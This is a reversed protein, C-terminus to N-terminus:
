DDDPFNYGKGAVPAVSVKLNIHRGPHHDTHTWYTKGDYRYKVKYGVLERKETFNDITECRQEITTYGRGRHHKGMDSGFSGGLLAGAVTMADKGGGKGFQNGVVGGVIAGAIMPTYSDRHRKGRHRVRENWCQQEPHNVQVTEYIPKARLVDGQAYYSNEAGYHGGAMASSAAVLGVFLTVMKNKM